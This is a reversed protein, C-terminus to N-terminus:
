KLSQQEDTKRFIAAGLIPGPVGDKGVAQLLVACGGNEAIKSAPFEYKAAEGRWVGATKVDTVSNWYTISRGENEGKKMDVRQPPAFFVLVVHAKRPAAGNAGGTEIMLSDGVQQVSVDVSLGQGAKNLEDFADAIDARKAGNVHIRGNIVAQPTYVSRTGFSRSYAYQRDTSDPNSLTDRWGLYDWYDVHYALAVLDSNTAFEEFLKDAPPCTSCGQSTFLEIVGGPRTGAGATAAFIPLALALVALRLGLRSKM